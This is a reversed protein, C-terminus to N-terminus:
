FLFPSRKCTVRQKIQHLQPSKFGRGFNSCLM